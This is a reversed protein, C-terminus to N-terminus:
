LLGYGAPIFRLSDKEPLIVNVLNILTHTVWELVGYAAEVM